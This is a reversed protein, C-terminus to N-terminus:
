NSFLAKPVRINPENINVCSSSNEHRQKKIALTERYEKAEAMLIFDVDKTKRVEFEIENLSVQFFEKHNNVLNVRRTNFAKHLSTELSPADDSYILAHVDYDFPVGAGSLEKIRVLPELRRSMGIKYVNDGFSGINSIIYVYGARTQQAMSIARQSKERAKDLEGSLNAITLELQALKAGSSTEAAKQADQLLKQYHEENKIADVKDQELRAEDKIQQKIIAQEEKYVQKKNDYEYALYLEHIKLNLYDSSIVITNTENLKNLDAFAKRLRQEMKEINNWRTNAIIADCENNFARATLKIGRAALKKGEAKSGHVEWITTCIIATNDAIMNKQQTRISDLETKYKEPTDFDYHPEYFGCEILGLQEKYISVQEAIENLKNLEQQKNTEIISCEKTIIAKKNTLLEIEQEVDLVNSFRHKYKRIKIWSFLLCVVAVIAVAISGILVINM